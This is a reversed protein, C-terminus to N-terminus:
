DGKKKVERATVNNKRKKKKGEKRCQKEEGKRKKEEKHKRSLNKSFVCKIDGKKRGKRREEKRGQRGGIKQREDGKYYIRINREKKREGTHKRRM